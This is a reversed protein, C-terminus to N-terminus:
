QTMFVNNNFDGRVNGPPFYNCVVYWAGSVNSQAAGVGLKKSSRWVVQTFHGTKANGDGKEFDYSTAEDLFSEVVQRAECM